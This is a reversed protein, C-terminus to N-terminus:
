RPRRRRRCTRGRWTSTSRVSSAAETGASSPECRRSGARDSIAHRHRPRAGPHGGPCPRAGCGRGGLADRGRGLGGRGAVVGLRGPAHTQAQRVRRRRVLGQRRHHLQDLLDIEQRGGAARVLDQHPECRARLRAPAMARCGGTKLAAEAELVRAAAVRLDTNNELAELVLASTAPDGFSEWWPSELEVAAGPPAGPANVYRESANAATVPREPEPGLTCASALAFAALAAVARAVKSRPIRMLEDVAM